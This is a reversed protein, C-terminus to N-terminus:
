HMLNQKASVKGIEDRNIRKPDHLTESSRVFTFVFSSCIKIGDNSSLQEDITGIGNGTSNLLLSLFIASHVPVCKGASTKCNFGNVAVSV